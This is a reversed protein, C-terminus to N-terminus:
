RIEALLFNLILLEMVLTLVALTVEMVGAAGRPGALPLGVIM